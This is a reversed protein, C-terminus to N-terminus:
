LTLTNNGEDSNFNSIVSTKSMGLSKLSEWLEKPKGIMESLKEELFAHKQNNKKLAILKLAEYKSKENLEKDIHLRSKKFKKFFKSRVNLKELVEGGVRKQTNGKVRKSKYPAIKDIVAM